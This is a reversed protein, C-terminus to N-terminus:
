EIILIPLTKLSATSYCQLPTNVQKFLMGFSSGLYIFSNMYKNLLWGVRNSQEPLFLLINVIAAVYLNIICMKLM